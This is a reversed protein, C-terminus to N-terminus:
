YFFTEIGYEWALALIAPNSSVLVANRDKCLNIVAKEYQSNDLLEMNMNYPEYFGQTDTCINQLLARVSSEKDIKDQNIKKAFMDTIIVHSFKTHLTEPLKSERTDVDIVATRNRVVSSYTNIDISDIRLYRCPCGITWAYVAAGMDETIFTINNEKALNVLKVDCDGTVNSSIDGVPKYFFGENVSRMLNSLAVMALNRKHKLLKRLELVTVMSIFGQRFSQEVYERLRQNILINTDLLVNSPQIAGLIYSSWSSIGNNIRYVKQWDVKEVKLFKTKSDKETSIQECVFEMKKKEFKTGSARPEMVKVKPKDDESKESEKQEIAEVKPKDDESKDLEKVDSKESKKPQKVKKKSNAIKSEELEEHQMGHNNDIKKANRKSKSRSMFLNAKKKLANKGKFLGVIESQSTSLLMALEEFSQVYTRRLLSMILERKKQEKMHKFLEISEDYVNSLCKLEDIADPSEIMDLFISQIEPNYKSLIKAVEPNITKEFEKEITNIEEHVAVNVESDLNEVMSEDGNSNVDKCTVVDKSDCLQAESIDVLSSMTGDYYVKSKREKARRMKFVDKLVDFFTANDAISTDLGQEELRLSVLKRDEDSLLPLKQIVYSVQKLSLQKKCNENEVDECNCLNENMLQNKTLDVFTRITTTQLAYWFLVMGNARKHVKETVNKKNHENM